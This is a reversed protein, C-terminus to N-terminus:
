SICPPITFKKLCAELRASYTFSLEKVFTKRSRLAHAGFWYRYLYRFGRLNMSQVVTILLVAGTSCYIHLCLINRFCQVLYNMTECESNTERVQSQMRMSHCVSQIIYALTTTVERSYYNTLVRAYFLFLLTILVDMLCSSRSNPGLQCFPMSAPSNQDYWFQV